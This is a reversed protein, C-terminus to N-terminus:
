NNRLYQRVDIVTNLRKISLLVYDDYIKRLSANRFYHTIEKCRLHYIKRSHNPERAVHIGLVNPTGPGSLKLVVVASIV